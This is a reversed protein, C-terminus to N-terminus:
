GLAPRMIWYNRLEHEEECTVVAAATGLFWQQRTDSACAVFIRVGVRGASREAKVSSSVDDIFYYRDSLM